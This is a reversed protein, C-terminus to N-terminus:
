IFPRLQSLPEVDVSVTDGTVNIRGLGTIGLESVDAARMLDALESEMEQYQEVIPRLRLLSELKRYLAQSAEDSM